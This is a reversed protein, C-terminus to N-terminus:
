KEKRKRRAIELANKLMLNKFKRITEKELDPVNAMSVIEIKSFYDSTRLKEVVKRYIVKTVTENDEQLFILFSMRGWAKGFEIHVPSSTVKRILEEVGNKLEGGIFDVIAGNIIYFFSGGFVVALVFGVPNGWAKGTYYFM